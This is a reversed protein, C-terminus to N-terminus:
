PTKSERLKLCEECTVPFRRHDWVSMFGMAPVVIMGCATKDGYEAIPRVFHRHGVVDVIPEVSKRKKMAAEVMADFTALPIAIGINLIKATIEVRINDKIEVVFWEDEFLEDKM